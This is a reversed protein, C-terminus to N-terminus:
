LCCYKVAGTPTLSGTPSGGTCQQPDVPAAQGPMLSSASGDFIDTANLCANSDIVAIVPSAGDCNTYDYATYNGGSCGTIAACGCASCGRSDNAGSYSQVSNPFGAPCADTGAKHVCIQQGAFPTTVCIKNVGCAAGLNADCTHVDSQWTGPKMPNATSNVNCTGQDSISPAGTIKCAALVGEGVPVNTENVCTNNAVAPYTAATGNACDTDGVWCTIEPSTCAAGSRSCGGCASCTHPTTVPDAFMKTAMDGLPCAPKPGGAPDVLIIDYGTWGGPVPPACTFGSDCIEPM